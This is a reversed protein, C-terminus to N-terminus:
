SETRGNDGHNAQNFEKLTRESFSKEYFIDELKTILELANHEDLVDGVAKDGACWVKEYEPLRDIAKPTLALVRKRSDNTDKQSTLFGKDTMKKTITIVSPHAMLIQDAIETVSLPGRAKLLKFVSFWNPEIEMDLATYLKRGSHILSDSLRKLRMTFGLYGLEKIFDKESM